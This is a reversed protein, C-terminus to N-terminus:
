RSTSASGGRRDWLLAEPGEGARIVAPRLADDEDVVDGVRLREVIHLLPHVLHLHVGRAWVMANSLTHRRKPPLVTVPKSVIVSWNRPLPIHVGGGGPLCHPMARVDDLQQDAVLQVLPLLVWRRVRHAAELASHWKDKQTKRRNGLVRRTM